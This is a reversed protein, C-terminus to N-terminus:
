RVLKRSVIGKDTQIRLFYLGPILSSVNIMLEKSNQSRIIDVLQGSTNWIECGLISVAGKIIIDGSSPNPYVMMETESIETVSLITVSLTDNAISECLFINYPTETFISTVYYLFHRSLLGAPITDYYVTDSIVTNNLKAFPPMGSSDSRYVNFGWLFTSDTQKLHNTCPPTWSLRTINGNGQRTAKCGSPPLCSPDIRINDLYWGSIDQSNLGTARFRFMILNGGYKSLDYEYHIWGTDIVNTLTALNDWISDSGAELILKENGTPNVNELKLDFSLPISACTWPDLPMYYSTLASQYDTLAPNGKFVACPAPKGNQTDILWNGQDPFFHWDAWAFTGMDWPEFFPLVIDCGAYTVSENSPASEAFLGPQGYYSLDYYATVTYAWRGPRPYLHYYQANNLGDVFNLLHGNGYVYYGVIGLPTNGDPKVPRAWLLFDDCGIPSATLLSPPYLTDSTNSGTLPIPGPRAPLVLICLLFVFIYVAKM